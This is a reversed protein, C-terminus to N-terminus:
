KRREQLWSSVVVALLWGVFFIFFIGAAAGAVMGFYEVVRSM